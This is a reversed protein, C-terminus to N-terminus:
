IHPQRRRDLRFRGAETNLLQAMICTLLAIHPLTLLFVRFVHRRKAPVTSLEARRRTRPISVNHSVPPLAMKDVESVNWASVIHRRSYPNDSLNKLLQQYRTSTNTKIQGVEGSAEMYRGWSKLQQHTTIASLKARNTQM